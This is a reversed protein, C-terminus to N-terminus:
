VARLPAPPARGRFAPIGVAAPMPCEPPACLLWRGPRRLVALVAAIAVMFLLAAGHGRNTVLRAQEPLTGNATAAPAVDAVLVAAPTPRADTSGPRGAGAVQHGAVHHVTAGFALLLSLLVASLRWRAQERGM